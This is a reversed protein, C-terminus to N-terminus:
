RGRLRRKEQDSRGEDYRGEEVRQATAQLADDVPAEIAALIVRGSGNGGETRIKTLLHIQILQVVLQKSHHLLRHLGCSEGQPYARGPLM